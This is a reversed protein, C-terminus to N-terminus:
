GACFAGVNKLSAGMKNMVGPVMQCAELIAEAAPKATPCVARDQAQLGAQQSRLVPLQASLTVRCAVAMVQPVDDKLMLMVEDSPPNDEAMQRLAADYNLVAGDAAALGPDGPCLALYDQNVEHMGFLNEIAGTSLPEGKAAATLVRSDWVIKNGLVKCASRDASIVAALKARAAEASVSAAQPLGECAKRAKIWRSRDMYASWTAPDHSFPAGEPNQELAFREAEGMMDVYGATAQCQFNGAHAPTATALPLAAPGILLAAVTLAILPRRTM